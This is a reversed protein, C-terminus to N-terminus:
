NLSQMGWDGKRPHQVTLKGGRIIGTAKRVSAQSFEESKELDIEIGKRFVQARQTKEAPRQRPSCSSIGIIQDLGIEIESRFAQTHKTKEVRQQHTFKM